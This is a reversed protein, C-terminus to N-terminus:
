GVGVVGMSVTVSRYNTVTSLQMCTKSLFGKTSHTDWLIGIHCRGM